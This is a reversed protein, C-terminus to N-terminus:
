VWYQALLNVPKIFSYLPQLCLKTPLRLDSSTVICFCKGSLTHCTSRAKVIVLHALWMREARGLSRGGAGTLTDTVWRLASEAVTLQSTGSPSTIMPKEIEWCTHLLLHLGHDWEILESLPFDQTLHIILHNPTERGTIVALKGQQSVQPNSFRQM